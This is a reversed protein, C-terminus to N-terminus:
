NEIPRPTPISLLDIRKLGVKGLIAEVYERTEQFDPVGKVHDVASPGANYAALSLALDGKYKELLQRLFKAGGDLNAAPEFADSIGFHDATAPMLQMLGKAGKKSVACPRFGSERATIAHLLKAPLRQAQAAAEIMPAVTEEDLPECAQPEGFRALEPAAVAARVPPAAYVKVADRQRQVSKRQAEISEATQGWCICAAFLTLYRIV